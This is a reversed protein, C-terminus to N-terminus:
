ITAGWSVITFFVVGIFEISFLPRANPLRAVFEFANPDMPSELYHRILAGQLWTKATIPTTALPRTRTRITRITRITRNKRTRITRITRITRSKRTRITHIKRTRITRIKNTRITRIKNPHIFISDGM